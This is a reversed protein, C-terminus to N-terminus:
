NGITERTDNKKLFDCSFAGQEHFSSKIKFIKSLNSYFNLFKWFTWFAQFNEYVDFIESFCPENWKEMSRTFYKASTEPTKPAGEKSVRVRCAGVPGKVVSCCFFKQPSKAFRLASSSRQIWRGLKSGQWWPLKKWRVGCSADALKWEIHEIFITLLTAICDPPMWARIHVFM